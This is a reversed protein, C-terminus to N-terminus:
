IGRGSSLSMANQLKRIVIKEGRAVHHDRHSLPAPTLNESIANTNGRGLDREGIPSRGIHILSKANQL